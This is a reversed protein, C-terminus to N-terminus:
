AVPQGERHRGDRRRHAQRHDAAERRGPAEGLPRGEAGLLRERGHVRRPRRPRREQRGRPPRPAGPLRRLHVQPLHPRARRAQVRRRGHARPAQRRRGVAEGRLRPEGRQRQGKKGRTRAKGMNVRGSHAPAPQATMRRYLPTRGNLVPRVTEGEKPARSHTTNRLVRLISGGTACFGSTGSFLPCAILIGKEGLIALRADLLREMSHILNSATMRVPAESRRGARSGAGAHCEGPGLVGPLCGPLELGGRRGPLPGDVGGSARRRPIGPMRTAVPAPSARPFKTPGCTMRATTRGLPHPRHPRLLLRAKAPRTDRRAGGCVNGGNGFRNCTITRNKRDWGRTHAAKRVYTPFHM